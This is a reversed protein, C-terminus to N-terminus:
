RALHVHRLVKEVFTVKRQSPLRGLRYLWLVHFCLGTAIFLLGLLLIRGLGGDEMQLPAGAHLAMRGGMTTSPLALLTSGHSTLQALLMAPGSAGVSAIGTMLFAISTAHLLSSRHTTQTNSMNVM